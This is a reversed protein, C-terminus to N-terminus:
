SLGEEGGSIGQETGGLLLVVGDFGCLFNGNISVTCRLVTSGDISMLRTLLFLGGRLARLLCACDM